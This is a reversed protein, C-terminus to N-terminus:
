AFLMMIDRYSLVLTLIIFLVWFTILIGIKVQEPVRRRTISEVTVILLQGGDLAGLPLVNLVALNISIIALFILLLRISQQAMNFSTSLMMIPGGAGKLSRQTVMSKLFGFIQWVYSHARGIGKKISEIFGFRIYEGDKLEIMLSFLSGLSGVNKGAADKHGLLVPLELPNGERIIKLTITEDPHSMIEPLLISSMEEATTKPNKDFFHNNVGVIIDKKLLGAREAASDKEVEQVMISANEQPTGFFYFSTFVAYAFFMNFIIGGMLVLFKQWYPKSCFARDSTDEAHQQDGQGPEHFGAIECYGGLPIPALRFNTDGIKTAIIAPGFGISFTPTHIGFIKCMLFHGLEHFAILFGFGFMALILPLVKHYLITPIQDFFM